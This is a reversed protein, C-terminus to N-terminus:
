FGEVFYFLQLGWLCYDRRVVRAWAAGVEWSRFNLTFITTILILHLM